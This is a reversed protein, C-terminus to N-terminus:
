AMAGLHLALRAALRADDDPLFLTTSAHLKRARAWVGADDLDTGVYLRVPGAADSSTATSSTPTSSTPTSSTPTSSTTGPGPPRSSRIVRRRPTPNLLILADTDPLTGIGAIRQLLVFRLRPHLGALHVGLTPSATLAVAQPPDHDTHPDTLM